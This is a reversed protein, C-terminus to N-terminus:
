LISLINVFINTFVINLYELLITELQFEFDRGFKIINNLMRVMLDVLYLMEIAVVVM